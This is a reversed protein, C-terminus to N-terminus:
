ICRFVKFCFLLQNYVNLKLTSKRVELSRRTSSTAPCSLRKSFRGSSSFGTSSMSGSTTSCGLFNQLFFVCKIFLKLIDRGSLSQFFRSAPSLRFGIEPQDSGSFITQIGDDEIVVSRGPCSFVGSLEQLTDFRAEIQHCIAVLAVVLYFFGFATTAPGM